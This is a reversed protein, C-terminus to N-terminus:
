KWRSRDYIATPGLGLTDPRRGDYIIHIVLIFSTLCDIGIFIGDRVMHINFGEGSLVYPMYLEYFGVGILNYYFLSVMAYIVDAIVYLRAVSLMILSLNTERTPLDRKFIRNLLRTSLSESEANKRRNLAMTLVNRHTLMYLGVYSIFPFMNVRLYASLPLVADLVYLILFGTLTVTVFSLLLYNNARGVCFTGAFFLAGVNIFYSSWNLDLTIGGYAEALGYTALSFGLVFVLTRVLYSDVSM